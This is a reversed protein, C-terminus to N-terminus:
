ETPYEDVLKIHSGGINELNPTLEFERTTVDDRAYIVLAYNIKSADDFHAGIDRQASAILAAIGLGMRLFEPVDISQLQAELQITEAVTESVEFSLKPM